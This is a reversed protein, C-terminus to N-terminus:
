RIRQSIAAARAAFRPSPRYDPCFWLELGPVIVKVAKVRYEDLPSLDAVLIHEVDVATLRGVVFDLEDRITRFDPAPEMRMERRAQDFFLSRANEYAIRARKAPAFARYDDRTGAFYTIYQMYAERLAAHAAEGAHARAAIGGHCQVGRNLDYVHCMVCPLDYLNPLLFFVVRCGKSEFQELLTACREDALRRGDVMFDALRGRLVPDALHLQATDREVLEYLGYLVAEALTNGAANGDTGSYAFMVAAKPVLVREGSVIDTVLVCGHDEALKAKLQPPADLNCFQPLGEWPFLRGGWEARSRESVHLAGAPAREVLEMLASALAEDIDDGNGTASAPYYDLFYFPVFIANLIFQGSPDYRSTDALVVDLGDLFKRADDCTKRAPRDRRDRGPGSASDDRGADKWDAALALDPDGRYKGFLTKLWRDRASKFVAPGHNVGAAAELGRFRNLLLLADQKKVDFAAAGREEFWTRLKLGAAAQPDRGGLLCRFYAEFTLATFHIGEAVDVCASREAADIVGGEEAWELFRLVNVLPTTLPRDRDDYTQAVVHYPKIAQRKLDDYVHGIGRMGCRDLEVARLAGISSSGFVRVGQELALMVEFTTCPFRDYFYGDIVLITEFGDLVAALLDGQEAPGTWSLNADPPAEARTVSGGAFVLANERRAVLAEEPAEIREVDTYAYCAARCRCARCPARYSFSKGRVSRALDRQAGILGKLPELAERYALKFREAPLFCFPFNGLTVKPNGAAASAAFAALERRLASASAISLAPPDFYFGLRDVSPAAALRALAEAPRAHFERVFVHVGVEINYRTAFHELHPANERLQAAMRELDELGTGSRARLAVTVSELPLPDHPHERIFADIVKRVGAHQFLDFDEVDIRSREIGFRALDDVFARLARRYTGSTLARAQKLSAPDAFFQEPIGDDTTHADPAM